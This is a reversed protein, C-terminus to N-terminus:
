TIAKDSSRHGTKDPSWKCEEAHDNVAASRTFKKRKTLYFESTVGGAGHAGGERGNVFLIFCPEWRWPQYADIHFPANDEPEWTRRAPCAEEAVSSMVVRHQESDDKKLQGNHCTIRCWSGTEMCCKALEAQLEGYDLVVSETGSAFRDATRLAWTSCQSSSSLLFRFSFARM